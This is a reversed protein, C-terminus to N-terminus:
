AVRRVHEGRHVLAPRTPTPLLGTHERTAYWYLIVIMGLPLVNGFLLVALKAVTYVPLDMVDMALLSEM